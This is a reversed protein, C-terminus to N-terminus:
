KFYTSLRQSRNLSIKAERRKGSIEPKQLNRRSDSQALTTVLAHRLMEQLM